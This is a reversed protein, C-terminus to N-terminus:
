RAEGFLSEYWRRSRAREGAKQCGPSCYVKPGAVWRAPLQARCARCSKATRPKTRPHRSFHGATDAAPRTKLLSGIDDTDSDGDASHRARSQKGKNAPNGRSPMPQFLELSKTTNNWRFDKERCIVPMPAPAELAHASATQEARETIVRQHKLSSQYNNNRGREPPLFVPHPQTKEKSPTHPLSKKKALPLPNAPTKM